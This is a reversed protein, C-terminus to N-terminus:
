HFVAPNCTRLWVAGKGDCDHFSLLLFRAKVQGRGKWNLSAAFKM